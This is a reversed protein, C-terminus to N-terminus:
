IGISLLHQGTPAAKADEPTFRCWPSRITRPAASGDPLFAKMNLDDDVENIRSPMRATMTPIIAM